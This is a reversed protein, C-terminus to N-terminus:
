NLGVRSILLQSGIGNELQEVRADNKVNLVVNSGDSHLFSTEVAATTEVASQYANM